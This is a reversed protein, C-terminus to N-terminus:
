LEGEWWKPTAGYVAEYLGRANEPTPEKAYAASAIEIRKWMGNTKEQLEELFKHVRYAELIQHKERRGQEPPMQVRKAYDYLSRFSQFLLIQSLSALDPMPAGQFALDELEEPTLVIRM